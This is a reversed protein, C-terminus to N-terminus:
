PKPAQYSLTVMTKGDETLILVNASTKEGQTASLTVTLSGDSDVSNVNTEFGAKKFKEAYFQKVKEVPDSSSFSQTGAIGEPTESSFGGEKISAGPYAPIWSPLSGAQAGSSIVTKGDPGQITMKGGEAAEAVDVTTTKGDAEQITFKGKALDNFPMTISKGSKKDRLTMEGKSEDTSIIELDPNAAVALKAMLKAPNGGSEEAIEKVKQCGKNILLIGAIGALAVISLCGIGVVALGSLGKKSEPSPPTTSM